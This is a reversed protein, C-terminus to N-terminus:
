VHPLQTVALGSEATQTTVIAFGNHCSSCVYNHLHDGPTDTYLQCDTINQCCKIHFWHSCFNCEVFGYLAIELTPTGICSKCSWAVKARNYMDIWLERDDQDLTTAALDLMEDRDECVAVFWHLGNVEKGLSEKLFRKRPGNYGIAPPTEADESEREKDGM